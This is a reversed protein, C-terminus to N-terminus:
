VNEGTDTFYIIKLLDPVRMTYWHIESNEMYFHFKKQKESRKEGVRLDRSSLFFRDPGFVIFLINCIEERKLIAGFVSEM